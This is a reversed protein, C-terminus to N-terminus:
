DGTPDNLLTDLDPAELVLDSWRELTLSDASAIREKVEKPLDGFRRTLQRTLLRVQGQAMGEEFAPQTLQRMITDEREPTRRRLVERVQDATLAIWVKSIYALVQVVDMEDLAAAEALVIDLSKCLTSDDNKRVVYKMAKLLTRLHADDSLLGDEIRGLDVLAYDFFPLYPRVASRFERFLAAFATPVTWARAGHYVVLPIIPPLPLRNGDKCWRAWIRPLYQLLQLAVLSDPTSKHEILVYIFAEGNGNALRVRYLLDSHLLALNRDVYSGPQLEPPDVSLQAALETPLQERLFRGAMQPQSMIQKFFADHIGSPSESMRMNVEHRAV